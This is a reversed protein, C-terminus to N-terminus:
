PIHMKGVPKINKKQMDCQMKCVYYDGYNKQYLKIYYGKILFINGTIDM